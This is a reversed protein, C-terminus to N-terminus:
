KNHTCRSKWSSTARRTSGKSTGGRSDWWARSSATDPMRQPAYCSRKKTRRNQLFWCYAPLRRKQGRAYARGDVLLMPADDESEPHDAIIIGDEAVPIRILHNEPQTAWMRVEVPVERAKM